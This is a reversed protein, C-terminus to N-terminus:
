RIGRRKKKGSRMKPTKRQSVETDVKKVFTHAAIVISILIIAAVQFDHVSMIIASRTKMLEDFTM